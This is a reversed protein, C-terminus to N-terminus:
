CYFHVNEATEAKQRPKSVRQITYRELGVVVKKLGPLSDLLHVRNVEELDRSDAIRGPLPGYTLPREWQRWVCNRPFRRFM